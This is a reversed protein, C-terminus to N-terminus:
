WHMSNINKYTSFTLASKIKTLVKIQCRKTSHTRQESEETSKERKKRGLAGIVARSHGDREEAQETDHSQDLQEALPLANAGEEPGKDLGELHLM